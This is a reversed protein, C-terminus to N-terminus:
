WYAPDRSFGVLNMGTGPKKPRYRGAIASPHITSRVRSEQNLMIKESAAEDKEPDHRLRRRNGVLGTLCPRGPQFSDDVNKFFPAYRDAKAEAKAASLAKDGGRM